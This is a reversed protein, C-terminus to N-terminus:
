AYKQLTSFKNLKLYLILYKYFTIYLNISLSPNTSTNM